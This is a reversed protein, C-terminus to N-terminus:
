NVYGPRRAILNWCRVAFACTVRHPRRDDIPLRSMPGGTQQCTCAIPRRILEVKSKRVPM